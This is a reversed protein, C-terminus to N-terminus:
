SCLDQICTRTERPIYSCPEECLVDNFAGAVLTQGDFSIDVSFGLSSDTGIPTGVLKAGDQVWTTASTQRFVFVSGSAAIRSRWNLRLWCRIEDPMGFLLLSPTNSHQANSNPSKNIEVLLCCACYVNASASSSVYTM